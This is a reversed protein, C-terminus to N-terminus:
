LINNGFRKIKKTTTKEFAEEVVEWVTIKKYSPLKDNIKEILDSIHKEIEEKSLEKQYLEKLKDVCPYIKAKVAMGGKSNNVGLVLAESITPEASLREELEEPYINKGNQTVIVNKCRGTLYLFGDEDIRGLDGTHFYGGRMVRETEAPDNYYGLMINDGKAIVEGVGEENPNEIKIEVGHIPLGVAAPNVYFDNNGA